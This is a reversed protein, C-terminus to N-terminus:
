TAATKTTAGDSIILRDSGGIGLVPILRMNAISRQMAKDLLRGVEDLRALHPDMAARAELQEIRRKLGAIKRDRKHIKRETRGLLRAVGAAMLAAEAEDILRSGHNHWYAEPDLYARAAARDSLARAAAEIAKTTPTM